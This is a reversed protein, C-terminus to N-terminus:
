GGLLLLPVLGESTHPYLHLMRQAAAFATPADFIDQTVRAFSDRIQEPDIGTTQVIQANIM